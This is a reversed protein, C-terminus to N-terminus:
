AESRTPLVGVKLQELHDADVPLDLATVAELTSKAARADAEARQKELTARQAANWTECRARYADPVEFVDRVREEVTYSPDGCSGLGLVVTAENLLEHATKPATVREAGLARQEVGSRFLERQAHVGLIAAAQHPVPLQRPLMELGAAAKLMDYRVAYRGRSVALLDYAKAALKESEALLRGAEAGDAALMDHAESWLDFTSQFADESAAGGEIIRQLRSVQARLLRLWRELDPRQAELTVVMQHAEADNKANAPAEELDRLEAAVRALAQEAQALKAKPGAMASLGFTNRIASIVRNAAGM